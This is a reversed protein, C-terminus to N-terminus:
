QKIRKFKKNNVTIIDINKKRARYFKGAIVNRTVGLDMAIDSYCLYEEKYKNNKDIEYYKYSYM